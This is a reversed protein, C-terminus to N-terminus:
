SRIIRTISWREGRGGAIGAESGGVARHQSFEEAAGSLCGSAEVGEGPTQSPSPM